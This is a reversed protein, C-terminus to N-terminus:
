LDSLRWAGKEFIMYFITTTDEGSPLSVTSEFKKYRATEEILRGEKLIQSLITLADDPIASLKKSYEEKSRSELNIMFEELNYNDLASSARLITAEATPLFALIKLTVSFRLNKPNNFVITFSDVSENVDLQGDLLNSHKVIYFPKGDVSLGDVNNVTIRSDTINEIVAKFPALLVGESINRLSIELSSTATRRDYRLRSQIVEVKDTVDTEACAASYGCFVSMLVFALGVVCYKVSIRERM